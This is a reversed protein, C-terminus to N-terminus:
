KLIYPLFFVIVCLISMIIAYYFQAIGSKDPNAKMAAYNENTSYAKNFAQITKFTLLTLVLWTIWTMSDYSYYVAERIEENTLM